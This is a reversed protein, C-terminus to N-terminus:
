KKAKTVDLLEIDFVLTSNPPISGTAQAGYGLEPPVVLQIKGGKKILPIGEVWGKVLKNLQFEVPEGRTYSSDFEQGNVLTGKYHVKVTDEPTVVDGSGAKEIKYLLGSKTQKVGDKKAYEARFKAGQEEAAKADAEIKAQTKEKLVNDLKTLQEGLQKDDFKGKDNFTETFGKLVQAKDYTVLDKQSEIIQQMQKSMLAGVAYSSDAVFTSDKANDAAFVSSAVASVVIATVLSLKKNLM